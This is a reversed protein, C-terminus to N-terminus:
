LCRKCEPAVGFSNHMNLTYIICEDLDDETVIEIWMEERRISTIKEDNTRILDFMSRACKHFRKKMESREFSLSPIVDMITVDLSSYQSERTYVIVSYRM